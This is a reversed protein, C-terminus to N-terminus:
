LYGVSRRLDDKVLSPPILLGHEMMRSGGTVLTPTHDM